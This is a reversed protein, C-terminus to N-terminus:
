SVHPPYAADQHAGPEDARFLKPGVGQTGTLAPRTENRPLESRIISVEPPASIALRIRNGNIQSVTVEINDGICISEGAKRSLVLM